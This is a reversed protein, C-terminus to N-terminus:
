LEYVEDKKLSLEQFSIYKKLTGFLQDCSASIKYNRCIVPYARWRPEFPIM